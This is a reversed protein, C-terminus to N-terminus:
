FVNRTDFAVTLKGHMLCAKCRWVTVSSISGIAGAIVRLIGKGSKMIKM